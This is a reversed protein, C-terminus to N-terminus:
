GPTFVIRGREDAIRALLVDKSVRLDALLEAITTSPDNKRLACELVSNENVYGSESFVEGLGDVIDRVAATPESTASKTSNSLIRDSMVHVIDQPEVGLQRVVESLLGQSNELFGLLLHRTTLSQSQSSALRIANAVGEKLPGQLWTPLQTSPDKALAPFHVSLYEALKADHDLSESIDGRLRAALPLVVLTVLGWVGAVAWIALAVRGDQFGSLQLGVGALAGVV